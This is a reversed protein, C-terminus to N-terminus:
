RTLARISEISAFIGNIHNDIKSSDGELGDMVGVSVM